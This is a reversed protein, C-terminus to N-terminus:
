FTFRSGVASPTVVSEGFANLLAWVARWGTCHAPMMQRLGFPRLHAVTDRILRDMAVCSLNLGGFVGLLPTNEKTSLIWDLAFDGAAVCRPLM